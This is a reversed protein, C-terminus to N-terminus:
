EAGIVRMPDILEWATNPVRREVVAADAGAGKNGSTAPIHFPMVWVQDGIAIRLEGTVGNPSVAGGYYNVAIELQSLDVAQSLTVTEFGTGPSITFDKFLRGHETNDRGYYIVDATPTPRVYLDLDVGPAWTIGISVPQAAQWLPQPAPAEQPHAEYLTVAGTDAAFQLMELKNTPVLPEAHSRDPADGQALRFLTGLDAGFYGMHAGHAEASVTWFRELHYAHATSVATDEGIIGFFLDMGELSGPLGATGYPSQGATAAIHGDNPVRAGRFSVSPARPDDHVPTGIVIIAADGMAYARRLLRLFGPLNIQGIRGLVPEAGEVFPKLAAILTSNAQLRARTNGAAKGQPVTFQGLLRNQAADFFLAIEGVQLHEAAHLLAREVQAQLDARDQHPSLGFIMDRAAAPMALLTSVLAASLFTHFHM